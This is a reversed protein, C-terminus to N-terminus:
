HTHTSLSHISFQILRHVAAFPRWGDTLLNSFMHTVDLAHIAPLVLLSHSPSRRGTVHTEELVFQKHTLWRQLTERVRGNVVHNSLLVDLCLLTNGNVVIGPSSTFCPTLMGDKWLAAVKLGHEGAEANGSNGENGITTDFMEEELVLLVMLCSQRYLVCVKQDVHSICGSLWVVIFTSHLLM